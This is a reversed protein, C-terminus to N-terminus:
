KTVSNAENDEASVYKKNNLNLLDYIYVHRKKKYTFILFSFLILGTIQM